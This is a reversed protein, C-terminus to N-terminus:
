WEGMGSRMKVIDGVHAPIENHKVFVLRNALVPARVALVVPGVPSYGVITGYLLSDEDDYHTTGVLYQFNKVSAEGVIKAM